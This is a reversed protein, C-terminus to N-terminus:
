FPLDEASDSDQGPGMDDHMGAPVGNMSGGERNNRPTLLKVDNAVIETRFQKTGDQAQWSRTQIRGEIYVKSGKTLLENMREALKEWTVINHWDATSSWDGEPSKVRRETAVSFSTTPVGSPTFRMEPARGVNGILMVKNLSYNSDAM